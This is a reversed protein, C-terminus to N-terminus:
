LGLTTKVQQRVAPTADRFATIVREAPTEREQEQRIYDRLVETVRADLYQTNTIAAKPPDEAAREANVRTVIATLAAEQATTTTITHNAM